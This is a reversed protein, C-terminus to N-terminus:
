INNVIDFIKEPKFKKMIKENRVSIWYDSSKKTGRMSSGVQYCWIEDKKMKTTGMVKNEIKLNSRM